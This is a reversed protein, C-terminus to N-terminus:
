RTLLQKNKWLFMIDGNATLVLDSGSILINHYSIVIVISKTIKNTYNRVSFIGSFHLM